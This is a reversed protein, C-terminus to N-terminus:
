KAHEKAAKEIENLEEFDHAIKARLYEEKSQFTKVLKGCWVCEQCYSSIMNFIFRKEKFMTHTHSCALIKIENNIKNINYELEAIKAAQEKLRGKYGFMKIGGGERCYVFDWLVYVCGVILPCIIFVLILFRPM